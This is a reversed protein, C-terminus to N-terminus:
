FSVSDKYETPTKGTVTKFLRCFYHFDLIGCHQAVTQVQLNTTKLLNQAFQIRRNNVYQTLSMGTEKKFLQSFYGSSVNALKSMERLSLDGTLDGEIKIIAKQIISSYQKISHQKVLNCYTELIEIMFDSIASLSHINETRKAFGSSVSDLYLPHVGGNEAAKRFLTNMVICYNKMNRLPDSIRKEFALSSFNALMMQAKHFNGCSILYMLENEYEYRKEMIALLKGDNNEPKMDEAILGMSSKRNLEVSEFNGYVTEAFAYVSALIFNEDNVVPIASYLLYLEKETEPSFGNKESLEMIHKDTIDEDLYPGVVFVRENDLKMMIYKLLFDDTGRYVVNNKIEPFFDSFTKGLIRKNMIESYVTGLKDYVLEGTEMVKNEIHCKDLIRKLFELERLCEM